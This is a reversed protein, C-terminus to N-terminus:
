EKNEERKNSARNELGSVAISAAMIAGVPCYM